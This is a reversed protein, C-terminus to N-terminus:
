PTTERLMLLTLLLCWCLSHTSDEETATSRGPRCCRGHISVVLKSSTSVESPKTVKNTMCLGKWVVRFCLCEALQLPLTDCNAVFIKDDTDLAILCKVLQEFLVSNSWCTTSPHSETERVNGQGRNWTKKLISHCYIYCRKDSM